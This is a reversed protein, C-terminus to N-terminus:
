PTRANQVEKPSTHMRIDIPFAQATPFRYFVLSVHGGGRSRRDEDLRIRQGGTEIIRADLSPQSLSGIGYVHRMYSAFEGARIWLEGTRSDVIAVWRERPDLSGALYRGAQIRDFAPRKQLEVLADFRHDPTLTMNEILWARELYEHLWAMTEEAVTATSAVQALACVMVYFDSAEAPKPYKMRSAGSTAESFAGRLAGAKSCDRQADFRVQINGAEGPTRVTITLPDTAYRGHREATEIQWDNPLRAATTLYDRIAKLDADHGPLKPWGKPRKGNSIAEDAIARLDDFDPM